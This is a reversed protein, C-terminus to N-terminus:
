EYSAEYKWPPLLGDREEKLVPTALVVGAEFLFTNIQQPNAAMLIDAHYESGYVQKAIVDWTDGSKTTYAMCAGFYYPHTDDEQLAWTIPKLVTFAGGFYPAKCVRQIIDEKINAVDQWGERDLGTDYACVILSFDVTQPSDDDEIQGGTMRVVIYPAEAKDTDVDADDSQPIPLDQKYIKLAKRGEQGCFLKGAFLEKLMEILADQCLQPTRGIDARAATTPHNRM